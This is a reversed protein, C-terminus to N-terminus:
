DGNRRSWILIFSGDGDREDALRISAPTEVTRSM